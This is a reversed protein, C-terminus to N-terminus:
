TEMDTNSVLGTRVAYSIVQARNELQLIELIRGMHYKVTRETLNLAAGAQKYTMGRSVMKIIELQHQTLNHKKESKKELQPRINEYAGNNRFEELLKTAISPSLAAWGKTIDSLMGILEKAGTNKLLYGSAGYKLAEYLDEDEDSMTLMVVRIEPMEAKILRLGDLGSFEPMKIDMLIVDPKIKRAKGLAERGNKAVGAVDIGHTELLYQLGELFLLCDDVLLLRM